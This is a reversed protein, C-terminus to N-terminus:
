KEAKLLLQYQDFITVRTNRNSKRFLNKMGGIQPFGAINVEQVLDDLVEKGAEARFSNKVYIGENSDQLDFAKLKIPTGEIHTIAIHVRNLQLNVFGYLLSNKPILKEGIHFDEISILELRDGSRLVQTGNVEAQFEVQLDSGPDHTVKSTVASLFFNAHGVSLDELRVQQPLATDESIIKNNNLVEPVDQNSNQSVIGILVTSDIVWEREDEIAPAYADLSDLYRESYVNPINREREEKIADVAETKSSYTEQEEQLRPILPQQLSEPVEEDMFIFMSYSGIFLLVIIIICVFVVKKKDAKM